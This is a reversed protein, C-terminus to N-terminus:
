QYAIQTRHFHFHRIPYYFLKELTMFEDFNSDWKTPYYMGREWEDDKISNAKKLLSFYVRDYISGVRQQTFVKGQGRAGLANIWNFPGTLANLLWAFWKSSSKPLRGWVRALPLLVNVVLFGFAMHAIIEGNTWGPNLSQQRFEQQSLSNLLNQFEARATDLEFLVEAKKSINKANM